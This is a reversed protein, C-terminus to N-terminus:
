QQMYTQIEMHNLNMYSGYARGNKLNLSYSKQEMKRHPNGQLLNAYPGDQM